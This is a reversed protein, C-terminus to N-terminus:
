DESQKVGGREREHAAEVISISTEHGGKRLYSELGKELIM